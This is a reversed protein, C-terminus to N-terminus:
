SLSTALLEAQLLALAKACAAADEAYWRMRDADVLDRVENLREENALATMPLVTRLGDQWKPRAPTGEVYGLSDLYAQRLEETKEPPFGGAILHKLLLQAPEGMNIKLAQDPEFWDTLFKLLPSLMAPNRGTCLFVKNGKAQAARIAAVASEPPTNSGPEVLTGDIDVFILKM